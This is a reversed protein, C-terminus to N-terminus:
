FSGQLKRLCILCCGLVLFAEHMDARRGFRVLLRRFQHLWSLSREVPWRVRGLGSGHATQRRAIQPRIGRRRLQRRYADHDYGRDAVLVRPRRRPGGPRGAIPPVADVLPILQTIDNRNGGSLSVALPVGTADVLLHHKSGPRGRDDPSPGTKSGGKEGAGPQLRRDGPQLRDCRRRAAQDSAPPSPAGV